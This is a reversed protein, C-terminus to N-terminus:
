SPERLFLQHPWGSRLDYLAHSELPDIGGGVVPDEAKETFAACPLDAEATVLTAGPEPHSPGPARRGDHVEAKTVIGAKWHGDEKGHEIMQFGQRFGGTGPFDVRTEGPGAGPRVEEAM